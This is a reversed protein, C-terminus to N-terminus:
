AQAGVGLESLCLAVHAELSALQGALDEIAQLRKMDAPKSRELHERRVREVYEQNVLARGPDELVARLTRGDGTEVAEQVRRFRDAASLERLAERKEQIADHGGEVRPLAYLQDKLQRANTRVQAATQSLSTWATAEEAVQEAIRQRKDLRSVTSDQEVRGVIGAAREVFRECAGLERVWTARLHEDSIRRGADRLEAHIRAKLSQLTNSM